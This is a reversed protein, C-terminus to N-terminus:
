ATLACSCCDPLDPHEAAQALRASLHRQRIPTSLRIAFTVNVPRIHHAGANALTPLSGASRNRMPQMQQHLQKSVAALNTTPGMCRTVNNAYRRCMVVSSTSSKVFSVYCCGVSTDHGPKGTLQFEASQRCLRASARCAHFRASCPRACCPLMVLTPGSSPQRAPCRSVAEIRVAAGPVSSSHWTPKACRRPRRLSQLPARRGLRM